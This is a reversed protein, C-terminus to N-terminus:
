VMKLRDYLAYYKTFRSLDVNL